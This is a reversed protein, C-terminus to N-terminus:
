YTFGQLYVAGLMSYWQADGINPQVIVSVSIKKTSPIRVCVQNNNGAYSVQDCLIRAYEVGDVTIVIDGTSDSDTGGKLLINLLVGKADESYKNKNTLDISVTENVVPGIIPPGPDPYM